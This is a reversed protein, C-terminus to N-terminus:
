TVSGHRFSNYAPSILALIEAFTYRPVQLCSHRLFVCSANIEWMQLARASGCVGARTRLLRTDALMVFTQDLADALAKGYNQLKV